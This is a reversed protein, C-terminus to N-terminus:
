CTEALRPEIRYGARLAAITPKPTLVVLPSGPDVAQPPGYRDGLYPHLSGGWLLSPTGDRSLVFAGDPLDAIHAEFRRQGGEDIRADHLVRDLAPATPREGGQAATWADLFRHYDRRRCEFCPRHGAALAVAEDFFFLETYRRPTMVRRYRGNFALRCILWARLRWRARGLRRADDHLIGRNGMCSGRFPEAVIEGTPLVRNQLPM